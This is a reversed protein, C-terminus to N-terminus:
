SLLDVSFGALLEVRRRHWRADSSLGDSAEGLSGDSPRNQIGEVLVAWRWANLTVFFPLDALDLGRRRAFEM